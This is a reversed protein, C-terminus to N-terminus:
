VRQDIFGIPSGPNYKEEVQMKKKFLATSGLDDSVKNIECFELFM